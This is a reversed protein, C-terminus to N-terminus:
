QLVFYAISNQMGVDVAVM